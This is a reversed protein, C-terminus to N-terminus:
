GPFPPLKAVCHYQQGVNTVTAVDKHRIVFLAKDFAPATFLELLLEGCSDHCAVLEQRKTFRTTTALM